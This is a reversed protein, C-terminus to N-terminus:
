AYLRDLLFRCDRAEEFASRPVKEGSIAAHFEDLSGAFWDPHASGASLAEPFVFHTGPDGAGRIVSLRDDLIEIRGKDGYVAGHNRRTDARWTLRVSATAEPYSILCVAEDEAGKPGHLAGHVERPASRTVGGILYFAHWGHDMLIGGGAERPDTRWNGKTGKAAATVAPKTRLVHWEVHRVKGVAKLDILEELKRFLPAFKWNHIPAVVRKRKKAAKELAELEATSFTLPKECLAHLGRGLADLAQAAHLHPPTAIDVFDLAPENAYLEELSPYAKLGSVLAEAAARREPSSDVVASLVFRDDRKYAPVHAKEAVQGFGILAGRLPTM